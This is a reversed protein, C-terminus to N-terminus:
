KGVGTWGYYFLAWVVRIDHKFNGLHIEYLCAERLMALLYNIDKKTMKM